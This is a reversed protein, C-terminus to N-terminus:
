RKCGEVKDVVGYDIYVDSVINPAFGRVCSSIWYNARPHFLNVTLALEEIRESMRQQLPRRRQRDTETRLAKNLLDIETDRIGSFNDDNESEFNKFLFEPDPYDMNMAVLFSQHTKGNYGAMLDDWKMLVVEINWGKKRLNQEIFDKMGNGLELERPIVIKILKKDVKKTSSKTIFTKLHGPLGPPLYGNAPYSDPYFKKRFGDVDFDQKFKKRVALQHFPPIRTNLGIIWTGNVPASIRKGTTFIKNGGSLPWNALDDIKGESALKIAKAEDGEILWLEHLSRKSKRYYNRAPALKITRASEDITLFKFPGTGVPREFYDKKRQFGYKSIVKASAGALVNLFNPYPYRLNLEITDNATARIGGKADDFGDDSWGLICDFYKRTVSEPSLNRKLSFAVDEATIIRGDHFEIGERLKFVIKKGDNSVTWSKALAGEIELTPSFKVLGDFLLNSVLLSSTDNMKVPDFTLPLSYVSKKYIRESGFAPLSVLATLLLYKIACHM